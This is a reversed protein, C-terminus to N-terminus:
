RCAIILVLKDFINDVKCGLQSNPAAATTAIAVMTDATTAEYGGGYPYGGGYGGGYGGYGGGYPYGGGYGWQRKFRQGSPEIVEVLKEGPALGETNDVSMQTEGTAEVQWLGVNLAVLGILLISRSM